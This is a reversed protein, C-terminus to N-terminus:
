PLTEVLSFLAARNELNNYNSNQLFQLLDNTPSIGNAMELAKDLFTTDGTLEYGYAFSSWTQFHDAGNLTGGSPVNDCYPVDLPVPATAIVSWPGRNSGTGKWAPSSIMGTTSRLLCTDIRSRFAPFLDGYVTNRVAYLANELIAQEISQRGRHGSWWHSNVLSQYMGTCDSQGDHVLNVVRNFWPRAQVRWNQGSTAYCAAMAFTIWGEGRGITFGEGPRNNVFNIDGLMSGAQVYGSASNPMWHYSLRGLEAQLRVDDKSMTDNGLWILTLPSRLYRTNHQFDIAKHQMLNYEYGPALGNNQVYNVQYHSVSDFGMPDNNSTVAQYFTFPVYNGQGNTEIWQDLRTPIGNKNFLAVPHRDTYMRHTLEALLYGEQSASAATVLGDYLFIETGSAMGGHKVGWPHAYGLRNSFFPYTGTALGSLMVAEVNQLDTRLKHRMSFPGKHSMTPIRHKQPFYSATSANWWSWLERGQDDLGRQCFAMNERRLLSNARFENGDRVIALRRHFQGQIPMVHMKGDSRAKVIPYVTWPGENYATGIQPDDIQHLIKWGPPLLIEVADFYLHNQPDDIPDQTDLGSTGNHVRLDLLMTEEGWIKSLYSHVGFFRPLAGTPPGLNPSTTRMIDHHAIEEILPGAKTVRRGGVTSRNLNAVYQNGFADHSRIQMSGGASALNEVQGSFGLGGPNHPATFVRYTIRDDQQAGGPRRVHAIVELVDADLPHGPYWSVVDVQTPVLTGDIDEVALPSLGDPRPYTGRPVPVTARLVFNRVRPAGMELTAVWQAATGDIRGGPLEPTSRQAEPLPSAPDGAAVAPGLLGLTVALVATSRAITGHSSSSGSPSSPNRLSNASSM